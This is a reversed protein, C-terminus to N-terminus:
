KCNLDHHAEISEPCLTYETKHFIFYIYLTNSKSTTTVYLWVVLSPNEIRSGLVEHRTIPTNYSYFITRVSSTCANLSHFALRLM